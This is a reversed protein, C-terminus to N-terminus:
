KVSHKLNRRVNSCIGLVAQPAMVASGQAGLSMVHLQVYGVADCYYLVSQLALFELLCVLLCASWDSSM